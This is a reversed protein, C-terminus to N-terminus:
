PLHAWKKPTDGAVKIEKIGQWPAPIPKKAGSDLTDTACPPIGLHVLIRTQNRELTELRTLIQNGQYLLCALFLPAMWRLLDEKSV